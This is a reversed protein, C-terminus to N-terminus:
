NSNIIEEHIQTHDLVAQSSSIACVNALYSNELKGLAAMM